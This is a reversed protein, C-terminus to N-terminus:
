RPRKDTLKATPPLAFDAADAKEAYATLAQDIRRGGITATFSGLAGENTVCLSFEPTPTGDVQKLSLCTAHRGAITTDHSTATVQQDLAATNLVALAAEPTILATGALPTATAPTPATATCTLAGEAGTCRITGTPTVILRGGPFQYATRIPKQAQAVTATDGGALQYRATYTLGTVKGLQGALESVLDDHALGAASAEDVGTCGTAGLLAAMAAALGALTLRLRTPVVSVM